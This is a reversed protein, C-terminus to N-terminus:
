PLDECVVPASNCPCTVGEKNPTDQKATLPFQCSCTKWNSLNKLAWEGKREGAEYAGKAEWTGELWWEQWAGNKVSDKFEGEAQKGGSPWYCTWKGQKQGAAFKGSCRQTGGEFWALYEGQREQNMITGTEKPCGNDFWVMGVRNGTGDFFVNGMLRGSPSWRVWIGCPQGQCYAGLMAPEGSPYMTGTPGHKPANEGAGQCYWDLGNAVRTTGEPCASATAGAPFSFPRNLLPCLRVEPQTKPLCAVSGLMVLWGLYSNSKM